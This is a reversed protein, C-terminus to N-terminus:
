NSRRNEIIADLRGFADLGLADEVAHLIASYQGLCQRNKELIYNNNFLEHFFIKLVEKLKSQDVVAFAALLPCFTALVSFSEGTVANWLLQDGAEEVTLV